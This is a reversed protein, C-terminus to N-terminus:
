SGLEWDALTQVGDNEIFLISGKGFDYIPSKLIMSILKKLDKMNNNKM